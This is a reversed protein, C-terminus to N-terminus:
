ALEKYALERSKDDFFDRLEYKDVEGNVMVLEDMDKSEEIHKRVRAATKEFTVEKSSKSKQEVADREFLDATSSILHPLQFNLLMRIAHFRLKNKPAIKIANSRKLIPDATTVTESGCFDEKENTATVTCMSPTENTYKLRYGNKTLIAVMGKGYPEIKGKLIYLSSLSELPKMNMESGAKMITYIQEPSYNPFAKSATFQKAMELHFKMDAAQAAYQPSFQLLQNEEYVKLGRVKLNLVEQNAESLEDTKLQLMKTVEEVTLEIKKDEM